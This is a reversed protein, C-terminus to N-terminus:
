KQQICTVRNFFKYLRFTIYGFLASLLLLSILPYINFKTRVLFDQNIYGSILGSRVKAFVTSGNVARTWDEVYVFGGGRMDAIRSKYDSPNELLPIYGYPTPRIYANDFTFVNYINASSEFLRPSLVAMLFAASIYISFKFARIM